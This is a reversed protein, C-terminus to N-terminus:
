QRIGLLASIESTRDRMGQLYIYQIVNMLPQVPDGPAWVKNWTWGERGEHGYYGTEGTELIEYKAGPLKIRESV